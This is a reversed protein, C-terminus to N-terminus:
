GAGAPLHRRYALFRAACAALLAIPAAACTYASATWTVSVGRLMGPGRLLHATVACAMVSALLLSAPRIASRSRQTKTEAATMVALLASTCLCTFGASTQWGPPGFVEGFLRDFRVRLWPQCSAIAATAAAGFLTAKWM